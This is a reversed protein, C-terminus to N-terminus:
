VKIRNVTNKLLLKVKPSFWIVCITVNANYFTFVSTVSGTNEAFDISGGSRRIIKGAGGTASKTTMKIYEPSSDVQQTMGFTVTVRYVIKRLPTDIIVTYSLLFTQKQM